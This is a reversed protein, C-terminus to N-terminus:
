CLLQGNKTCTVSVILEGAFPMILMYGEASQYRIAGVVAVGSLVHSPVHVHVFFYWM